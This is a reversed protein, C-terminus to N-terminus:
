EDKLRDKAWAYMRKWRASPKEEEQFFWNGDDNLFAIEAAMSRSINLKEYAYNSDDQVNPDYDKEIDHGEHLAVAGMACCVGDTKAFIDAHLEKIPMAELAAVMRKLFAQGRKGDISRNVTGRYLYMENTWEHSYNSRSM